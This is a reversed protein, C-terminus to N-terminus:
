DEDIGHERGPNTCRQVVDGLRSREEGPRLQREGIHGRVHLRGEPLPAAPTVGGPLHFVRRVVDASVRVLSPGLDRFVCEEGMGPV